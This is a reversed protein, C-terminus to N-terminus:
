FYAFDKKRTSHASKNAARQSWDFYNLSVNAFGNQYGVPNETTTSAMTFPTLSTLITIPLFKKSM